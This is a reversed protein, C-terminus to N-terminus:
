PGRAATALELNPELILGHGSTDTGAGPSFSARGVSIQGPEAGAPWGGDSTGVAHARFRWWRAVERPLAHWYDGQQRMAALFEDYIALYSPKMLYDPHTNVLAMGCHQRVFAAKEIWLRPTTEHLTRMLTHDQPLTYPLEVFRGITFPWISMTGGPIPEFPDTDFFSADYEVALAQMWAPNRNTLPARFGVAQWARLYHNIQRARAQFTGYSSFLKGDHRLGHVGVEFGRERLSALLKGDVRYGEPVFNFSSRFGRREELAMLERAFGQGRASEVDHTLVLAFRRGGPWFHLYDISSLGRRRLLHSLTEFQFRVYREEIPWGLLTRKAGGRAALRQLLPKLAPPVLPRLTYYARKTRSLRWHDAGFQEEGLIAALRGAPHRANAAPLGALCYMAEQAAAQWDETSCSEGLTRWFASPTNDRLLGAFSM